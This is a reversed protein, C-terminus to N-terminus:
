ERLLAAKMLESLSFSKAGLEFALVNGGKSIVITLPIIGTWGYKEQLYAYFKSHAEGPVIHYNIGYEKIYKLSEENSYQQAEIAIIEFSDGLENKLNVLEPIEKKCYKCDWGFVKLFVTKEEMGKIKFIKDEVDLEIRENKVTEFVFDLNSDTKVKSVFNMLQTGNLNLEKNQTIFYFILGIVLLLIFSILGKLKSM